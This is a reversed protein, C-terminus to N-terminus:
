PNAPWYTAKRKKEGKREKQEECNEREKAYVCLNVDITGLPKCYVHPLYTTSFKL